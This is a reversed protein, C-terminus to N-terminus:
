RRQLDRLSSSSIFSVNLLVMCFIWVMGHHLPKMQHKRRGTQCELIVRPSLVIHLTNIGQLVVLCSSSYIFFLVNWPVLEGTHQGGYTLHYMLEPNGAMRINSPSQVDDTPGSTTPLHDWCSLQVDHGMLSIIKGILYRSEYPEKQKGKTSEPRM